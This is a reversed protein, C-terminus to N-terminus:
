HWMNLKGKLLIEKKTDDYTKKRVGSTVVESLSSTKAQCILLNESEVFLVEHEDEKLNKQREYM